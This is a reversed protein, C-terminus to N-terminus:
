DEAITLEKQANEVTTYMSRNELRNKSLFPYVVPSLLKKSIPPNNNGTLQSFILGVIISILSGLLTYWYFSLKFLSFIDDDGQPHTRFISVIDINFYVLLLILPM